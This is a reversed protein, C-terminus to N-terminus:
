LDYLILQYFENIYAENGELNLSYNCFDILKIFKSWEAYSLIKFSDIGIKNGDINYYKYM